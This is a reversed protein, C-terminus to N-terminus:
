ARFIGEFPNWSPSRRVVHLYYAYDASAAYIGALFLPVVRWVFDPIEGDRMAFDVVNLLLIVATALALMTLAKRWMGLVLFYIPGFLFALVNYNWFMREVFPKQRMANQFERSAPAGHADFFEFRKRWRPKLEAYVTPRVNEM